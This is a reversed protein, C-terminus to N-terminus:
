KHLFRRAAPSTWAKMDSNFDYRELFRAWVKVETSRHLSCKLKLYEATIVPKHCNRLLVDKLSPDSTPTPAEDCWNLEGCWSSLSCTHSVKLEPQFVCVCVDSKDYEVSKIELERKLMWKKMKDLYAVHSVISSSSVKKNAKSFLQLQVATVCATCWLAASPFLHFSM